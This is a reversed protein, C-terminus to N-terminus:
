FEDDDDDDDDGDDEDDNCCLYEHVCRSLRKNSHMMAFRFCAHVARGLKRFAFM